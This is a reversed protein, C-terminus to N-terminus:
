AIYSAGDSNGYEAAAMAELEDLGHVVMWRILEPYSTGLARAAVMLRGREAATFHVEVYYSGESQATM